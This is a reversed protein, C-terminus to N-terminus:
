VGKWSKALVPKKWRMAGSTPEGYPIGWWVLAEQEMKGKVMGSSTPVILRDEASAEESCLLLSGAILLGMWMILCIRKM